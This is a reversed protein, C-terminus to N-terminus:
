ESLEELALAQGVQAYVELSRRSVQQGPPEICLTQAQDCRRPQGPPPWGRHDAAVARQGKGELLVHAAILQGVEFIRVEDALLHVEVVRKRTRDPVSYFNGQVSIMGDRTVRRELKLVSRYALAPLPQLAAREQAMAQQVIRGTTGHCRANAVEQLWANLQQNLDALHRFSRGLFFDRRVYRFAREIKGKTKARYPACAQPTFGYHAALDLLKANYIIGREPREELVATKMRDYLIQRPVGEFASFADIHCRIVSQLDQRAVFRAYLYRSYGLVMSFLWVVRVQEPEDDFVTKFQAFDVQAQQGAPTEFRHEFGNVVAPRIERLYDTLITYGGSYGLAQLERHLRKGSLEPYAQVRGQLYDYYPALRSPRPQRPGYIPPELACRLYKRVTKRDLGTRRAIAKISLGQRHLEHLM